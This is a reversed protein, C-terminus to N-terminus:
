AALGTGRPTVPSPPTIVLDVGEDFSLNSLRSSKPTGFPDAGLHDPSLTKPTELVEMAALGISSLDEGEETPSATIVPSQALLSSSSALVPSPTNAV